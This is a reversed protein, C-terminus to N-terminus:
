PERCRESVVLFRAGTIGPTPKKAGYVTVSCGDKVLGGRSPKIKKVELSIM